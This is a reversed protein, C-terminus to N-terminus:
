CSPVAASLLQPTQGESILLSLQQEAAYKGLQSKCLNGLIPHFSVPHSPFPVYAAGTVAPLQQHHGLVATVATTAAGASPVRARAPSPHGSPQQCTAAPKPCAPACKTQDLLHCHCDMAVLQSPFPSKKATPGQTQHKLSIKLHTSWLPLTTAGERCMSVPSDARRGAARGSFYLFYVKSHLTAMEWTLKPEKRLYSDECMNHM